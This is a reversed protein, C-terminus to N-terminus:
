IVRGREIADAPVAQGSHLGVFERGQFKFPLYILGTHKLTLRTKPILYYLKCHKKLLDSLIVKAAQAAEELPLRVPETRQGTKLGQVEQSLDIPALSMNRAVRLFLKPGLKFAPILLQVAEQNWAEPLKQYSRALLRMDYRSKIPLGYLELTLHWFPLFNFDKSSSPIKLAKYALPSFRNRKVRWARSCNQCVLAVAGSAAPLNYGCEPCILPLFHLYNQQSLGDLSKLLVIIKSKDIEQEPCGGWTGKLVYTGREPFETLIFPAYILCQTEGIYREFLVVNKEFQLLRKEAIHLAEKANRQPPILHNGNVALDLTAVQPHIGLSSVTDIGSFASVTTDLLSSKLQRQDLVKYRLGKFRWYPLYLLKEKGHETPGDKVPLTYRLPGKPVIYLSTKCFSCSLLHDGAEFDVPGGCQPCYSKAKWSKNANV